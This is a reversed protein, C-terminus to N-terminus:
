HGTTHAAVPPRADTVRCAYVRSGGTAAHSTYHHRILRHLDAASDADLALGSIIHTARFRGSQWTIRYAEGWRRRLGALDAPIDPSNV